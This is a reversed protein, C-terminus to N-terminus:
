GSSAPTALLVCPLQVVPQHVVWAAVVARGQLTATLLARLLGLLPWCAPCHVAPVPSAHRCVVWAAAKAIKSCCVVWAAVVARAQLEATLM